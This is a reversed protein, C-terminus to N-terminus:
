DYTPPKIGLEEMLKELSTQRYQALKVLASIRRANALEIENTIQILTEQETPSLTESRRKAILYHYHQWTEPSLGLNIQQLLDAEENSFNAAELDVSRLHQELINTIYTDPEIGAKAAAQRIQTELDPAIDLTITM